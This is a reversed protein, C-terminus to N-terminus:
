CYAGILGYVAFEDLSDAQLEISRVLIVSSCLAFCYHDRADNEAISTVGEWIFSWSLMPMADFGRVQGIKSPLTFGSPM